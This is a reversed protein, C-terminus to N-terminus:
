ASVSPYVTGVMAASYQLLVAGASKQSTMLVYPVIRSVGLM